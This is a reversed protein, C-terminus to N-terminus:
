GWVAPKVDNVNHFLAARDNPLQTLDSAENKCGTRHTMICNFPVFLSYQHSYIGINVDFYRRRKAYFRFIYACSSDNSAFLRVSTFAFISDFILINNVLINLFCVQLIDYYCM